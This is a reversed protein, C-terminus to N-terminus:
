SEDKKLDKNLTNILDSDIDFRKFKAWEILNFKTNDFEEVFYFKSDALLLDKLAVSKNIMLSNIM